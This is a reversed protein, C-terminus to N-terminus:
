RSAVDCCLTAVTSISNATWNQQSIYIIKHFLYGYSLICFCQVYLGTYRGDAASAIRGNFIYVSSVQYDFCYSALDQSIM